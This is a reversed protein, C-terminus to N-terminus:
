GAATATADRAAAAPSTAGPALSNSPYAVPCLQARSSVWTQVSRVRVRLAIVVAVVVTPAADTSERKPGLSGDAGTNDANGAVLTDAIDVALGAAGDPRVGSVQGSPAASM